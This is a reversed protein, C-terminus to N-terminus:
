LINLRGKKFVSIVIVVFYISLISLDSDDGQAPIVYFDM